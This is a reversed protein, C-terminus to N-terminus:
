VLQEFLQRREQRDMRPEFREYFFPHLPRKSLM